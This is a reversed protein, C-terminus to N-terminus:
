AMVTFQASLHWDGLPGRAVADLRGNAIAAHGGQAVDAFERYLPSRCRPSSAFSELAHSLEIVGSIPRHSNRIPCNASKTLTRFTGDKEM